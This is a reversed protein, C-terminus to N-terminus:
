RHPQTVLLAIGALILGNKMLDKINTSALSAIASEPGATCIMFNYVNRPFLAVLSFLGM